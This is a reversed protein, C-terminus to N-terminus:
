KKKRSSSKKTTRKATKRARSPSKTSIEKLKIKQVKKEQFLIWLLAVFSLAFLSLSVWFYYIQWEPQEKETVPSSKETTTSLTEDASLRGKPVPQPNDTVKVSTHLIYRTAITIGPNNIDQKTKEMAMGLRYEDLKTGEPVALTFPIIKEERPGLIVEPEDFTVWKGEGNGGAQRTMYAPTGQASLTSDAGYLFFKAEEESLNQIVM